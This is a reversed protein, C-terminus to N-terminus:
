GTVRRRERFYQQALLAVRRNMEARLHEGVGCPAKLTCAGCDRRHSNALMISFRAGETTIM